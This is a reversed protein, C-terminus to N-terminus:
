TRRQKELLITSQSVKQRQCEEKRKIVATKWWM